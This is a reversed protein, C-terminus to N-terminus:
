PGCRGGFRSLRVAQTRRVESTEVFRRAGLGHPADPNGVDPTTGDNLVVLDLSLPALHSLLGATRILSASTAGTPPRIAALCLALSAIIALTVAGATTPPPRRNKKTAENM